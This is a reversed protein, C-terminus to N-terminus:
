RDPTAALLPSLRHVIAEAAAGIVVGALVDIPYHAGRPVQVIGVAAQASSSM